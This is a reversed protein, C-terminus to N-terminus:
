ENVKTYKYKLINGKGKKGENSIYLDGDPSFTIGEPQKFLITSLKEVAFLRYQEDLVVIVKAVSSLIYLHKTIPNIALASPKFKGNLGEGYQEKLAKDIEAIVIPIEVNKKFKKKELDFAYITKIGKLPKEVGAQEKCLMLLQNNAEDYCLGEVDHDHNLPTKYSKTEQDKKDFDKVKYLTGDSRVIYLKKGVKAIGEYDGDKTFKEKEEIEEKKTDIIFVYGEEDQIGAVEHNDWWTLGSIETLVNPLKIRKNPEDLNYPIKGTSYSKNLSVGLLVAATIAGAGFVIM